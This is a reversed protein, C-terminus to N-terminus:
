RGRAPGAVAPPELVAAASRPETRVPPAGPFWLRVYQSIATRLGTVGIGLWPPTQLSHWDRFVGYGDQGPKRGQRRDRVAFAGHGAFSLAVTDLPGHELHTVQLRLGDYEGARLTPAFGIRLRQPLDPSPAAYYTDGTIAAEPYPLTLHHAFFQEAFLAM